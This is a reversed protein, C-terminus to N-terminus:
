AKVEFHFQTKQSSLSDIRAHKRAWVDTQFSSM